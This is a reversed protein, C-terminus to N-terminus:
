NKVNKGHFALLFTKQKTLNFFNAAVRQTKDASVCANGVRLLLAKVYLMYLVIVTDRYALTRM